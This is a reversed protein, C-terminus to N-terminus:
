SGWKPLPSLTIGKLVEPHTVLFSILTSGQSQSDGVSSWSSDCSRLTFSVDFVLEKKGHGLGQWHGTGVVARM